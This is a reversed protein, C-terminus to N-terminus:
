KLKLAILILTPSQGALGCAKRNTPNLHPLSSEVIEM